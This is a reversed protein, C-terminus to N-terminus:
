WIRLCQSSISWELQVVWLTPGIHNQDKGLGKSTNQKPAQPSPKSIPAQTNNLNITSTTNPSPTVSLQRIYSNFTNRVRTLLPNYDDLPKTPQPPIGDASTEKFVGLNNGLNLNNGEGSSTSIPVLNKVFINEVRELANDKRSKKSVVLSEVFTESNPTSGSNARPSKGRRTYMVIQTEPKNVEDIEM